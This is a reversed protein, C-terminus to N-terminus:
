RVGTECWTVQQAEGATVQGGVHLPTIFCVAFNLKQMCLMKKRQSLQVSTWNLVKRLIKNM